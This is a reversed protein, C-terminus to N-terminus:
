TNGRLYWLNHQIFWMGWKKTMTNLHIFWIHPVLCDTTVNRLRSYKSRKELTTMPGMDQQPCASVYWTLFSLYNELWKKRTWTQLYGVVLNGNTSGCILLDTWWSQLFTPPIDLTKIQFNNVKQWSQLRGRLRLTPLSWGRPCPHLRLRGFVRLGLPRQPSGKSSPNPSRCSSFHM